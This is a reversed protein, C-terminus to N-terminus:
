SPPASPGRSASNTLNLAAWARSGHAASPRAYWRHRRASDAPSARLTDPAHTDKTRQQQAHTMALPTAAVGHQVHVGHMLAPALSAQLVGAKKRWPM